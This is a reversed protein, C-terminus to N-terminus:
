TSIRCHAWRELLGGYPLLENVPFRIPESSKQFDSLFTGSLHSPHQANKQQKRKTKLPPIKKKYFEKDLESKQLFCSRFREWFILTIM